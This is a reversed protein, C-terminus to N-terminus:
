GTKRLEDYLRRCPVNGPDMTLAQELAMLAGARDGIKRCVQALLFYNQSTPRLQAARAAFAKAEPLRAGADGQQTYGTKHGTVETAFEALRRYYPAGGVFPLDNHDAGEVPYWFRPPPAAQFLKEGMAIPVIDDDSGHILLVPMELRGIKELTDDSFTPTTTPETM